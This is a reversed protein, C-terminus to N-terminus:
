VHLWPPAGFADSSIDCKFASEYKETEGSVMWKQSIPLVGMFDRKTNQGHHGDAGKMELENVITEM